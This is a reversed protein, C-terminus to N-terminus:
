QTNGGPLKYPDNPTGISLTLGLFQAGQGNTSHPDSVDQLTIQFSECMRGDYTRLQTLPLTTAGNPAISGVQTGNNWVWSRTNAPSGYNTSVSINMGHPSASNMIAIIDWLRFRGQLPAAGNSPTLIPATVWTSSVYTNNDYYALQDLPDHERWVTGDAALLHMKESPVATFFPGGAGNGLAIAASVFGVQLPLQQESYTGNMVVGTTWADLVYDRFIIEGNIQGTALNPTDGQGALILMRSKQPYLACGVVTGYNAIEDEVPGGVYRVTLSRDILRVGGASQYYVGEPTSLVSTGSICGVDTPIYNAVFSGGTGDDASGQGSLYWNGSGKLVIVKDDMITMGIISDDDGVTISNNVENYGPGTGSVLQKTWWVQNGRSVYLRESDSAMLNSAPPCFNDLSGPNGNTGDGYLLPFPYAAQRGNLINDALGDALTIVTSGNSSNSVPASLSFNTDGIDDGNFFRDGLRYYVLGNLTTRYGGMKVSDTPWASYNRLDNGMSGGDNPANNRLSVGLSPITFILGGTFPLSFTSQNTITSAPGISGPGWVDLIDQGTVTIPARASIHFNGQSDFHEWAFIWSYSDTALTWTLSGPVPEGPNTSGALQVPNVLISEPTYLFGQEIANQGDYLTPLAGGIATLGGYQVMRYGQAPLTQLQGLAPSLRGGQSASVYSVSCSGYVDGAQSWFSGGTWCNPASPSQYVWTAPFQIQGSAPAPQFGWGPDALATRTQLNGVPRMPLDKGLVTCATNCARDYALVVFGGQTLSPIWGLYYVIGNAEMGCSALTVGPTICAGPGGSQSGCCSFSGAGIPTVGDQFSVLSVGVGAALSFQNQIIRANNEPYWCQILSSGNGVNPFGLRHKQDQQMGVVNNAVTLTMNPPSAYYNGGNTISISAVTQNGQTDLTATAVAGGSVKASNYRESWTLGTAVVANPNVLSVVHTSVFHDILFSGNNGPHSGDTVNLFNGADAASFTAAADTFNALNGSPASFAGASGASPGQPGPDVYGSGGSVVFAGTVVGGSVTLAIQCGSGVGGPDIVTCTPTSTYGYGGNAVAVGTITGFVGGFTLKIIAGVGPGGQDFTVSPAVTYNAGNNTLAYGTVTYLLIPSVIPPENFGASVSSSCTATLTNPYSYGSGASSVVSTSVFQNGGSGTMVFTGAAGNGGGGNFAVTPTASFLGNNGYSNIQLEALYGGLTATAAAGNGQSGVAQSTTYAANWCSGSPSHSEIWGGDQYSLDMWSPPCEYASSATYVTTVTSLAQLLPYNGVASQITYDTSNGDGAVSWSVAVKQLNFDARVGFGCVKNVGSYTQVNWTGSLTPPPGVLWRQVVVTGNTWFNGGIQSFTGTEYALIFSTSDGIVARMDFAGAQTGPSTGPYNILPPSSSGYPNPAAANTTTLNTISSWSGGSVLAASTLTRCFIYGNTVPSNASSTATYAVVFTSGVSALRVFQVDVNTTDLVTPGVVQQGTSLSMASWYLTGVQTLPQQPRAKPTASFNVSADCWMQVIYDGIVAQCANFTAGASASTVQDSVFGLDPIPGRIVPGGLDDSYAQLSTAVANNGSAPRIGRGAILLNDAQGSNWSGLSVGRRISYGSGLPDVGSLPFMGPRKSLRGAKDLVLNVAQASKGSPIRQPAFKQELGGTIPVEVLSKRM